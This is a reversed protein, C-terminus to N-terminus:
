PQESRMTVNWGLNWAKWPDTDYLYPNNLGHADLNNAICYRAAQEGQKFAPHEYLTTM